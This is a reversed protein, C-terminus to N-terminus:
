KTVQKYSTATIPTGDIARQLDTISGTLRNDLSLQNLATVLRLGHSLDAVKFTITLEM